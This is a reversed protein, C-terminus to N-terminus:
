LSQRDRVLRGSHHVGAMCRDRWAESADYLNSKTNITNVLVSKQHTRAKSVIIGERNIVFSPWAWRKTGNNASVAFFNGAAAAQLTAPVSIIYQDFRSRKMDANHFSVPMLEVGLRKYERFLEPYRFDHCILLGCTVNRVSFTILEEGPSYHNLDGDRENSRTCFMKDYRTVLQGSANIVYLSNHPKHKGNLPHNCGIVVWTRLRRAAEMVEEMAATIVSWKVSHRSKVEM